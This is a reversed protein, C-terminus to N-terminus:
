PNEFPIYLRSRRSTKLLVATIMPGVRNFQLWGSWREGPELVRSELANAYLMSPIAMVPLRRGQSDIAQVDYMSIHQARDAANLITLKLRAPGQRDGQLQDVRIQEVRWHGDAAAAGRTRLLPVKAVGKDNIRDVTMLDDPWPYNRPPRNDSNGIILLVPILALCGLALGWRRLWGAQQAEDPPLTLEAEDDQDERSLQFDHELLALDTFEQLMVARGDSPSHAVAYHERAALRLAAEAAGTTAKLGAEAPRLVLGGSVRLDLDPELDRVYEDLRRTLERAFIAADRTDQGNMGM